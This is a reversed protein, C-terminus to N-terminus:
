PEIQDKLLEQTIFGNTTGGAPIIYAREKAVKVEEMQVVGKVILRKSEAPTLSFVARM